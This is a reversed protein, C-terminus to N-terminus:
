SSYNAKKTTFINEHASFACFNNERIYNYLTYNYVNYIIQKGFKKTCTTAESM